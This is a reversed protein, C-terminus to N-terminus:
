IIMPMYNALEMITIMIFIQKGQETIELNIHRRLKEMSHLKLLWEM